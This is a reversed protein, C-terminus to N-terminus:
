VYWPPGASGPGTGLSQHQHAVQGGDQVQPTEMGLSQRQDPPGHVQAAGGSVRVLVHQQPVHRADQQFGQTQSPLGSVLFRHVLDVQAWHVLVARPANLNPDLASTSRSSWRGSVLPGPDEQVPPGETRRGWTGNLRIQM